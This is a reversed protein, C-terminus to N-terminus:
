SAKRFISLSWLALLSHFFIILEVGIGQISFHIIGYLAIAVVIINYFLLIQILPYIKSNETTLFSLFAISLLAAGAIMTVMVAGTEKIVSLFLVQVVLQPVLILALGTLGEFIATVKLFLKM